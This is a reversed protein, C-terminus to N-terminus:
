GWTERMSMAPLRVKRLLSRRRGGGDVRDLTVRGCGGDLSRRAASQPAPIPRMVVDRSVEMAVWISMMSGIVLNVSSSRRELGVKNVGEGVLGFVRGAILLINLVGRSDKWGGASVFYSRIQFWHHRPWRVSM